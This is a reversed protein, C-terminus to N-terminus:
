LFADNARVTANGNEIIETISLIIWMLALLTASLSRFIDM